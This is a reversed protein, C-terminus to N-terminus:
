YSCFIAIRVASWSVPNNPWDIAFVLQLQGPALSVKHAWAVLVVTALTAISFGSDELVGLGPAILRVCCLANSCEM